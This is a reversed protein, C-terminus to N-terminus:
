MRMGNIMRRRGIATGCRANIGGTDVFPPFANFWMIITAFYGTHENEKMGLGREILTINSVAESLVGLPVFRRSNGRLGEAEKTPQQSVRTSNSIPDDPAALGFASGEGYLILQMHM